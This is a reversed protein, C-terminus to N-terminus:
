TRNYLRFLCGSYGLAAIPKDSITRLQSYSCRNKLPLQDRVTGAGFLSCDLTSLKPPERRIFRLFILSGVILAYVQGDLSCNVASYTGYTGEYTTFTFPIRFTCPSGSSGAPLCLPAVNGYPIHANYDQSFLIRTQFLMGDSLRRCGTQALIRNGSFLM